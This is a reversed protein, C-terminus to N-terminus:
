REQETKWCPIITLLVNTSAGITASASSHQQGSESGAPGVYRKCQEGSNGDCGCERHGCDDGDGHGCEGGHGFQVDSDGHRCLGCGALHLRVAHCEDAVYGVSTTNTADSTRRKYRLRTLRTRARRFRNGSQTMTLVSLDASQVAGNRVQFEYRGLMTSSLGLPDTRPIRSATPVDLFAGNVLSGPLEFTQERTERVTQCLGCGGFFWGFGCVGGSATGTGVTSKDYNFEMDFNGAGTDPRAIVILQFSNVLIQRSPCDESTQSRCYYAVNEWNVGFAQQGNV